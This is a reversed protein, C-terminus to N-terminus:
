RRCAAASCWLLPAPSVDVSVSVRGREALWRRSGEPLEVVWSRRKRKIHAWGCHQQHCQMTGYLQTHSHPRYIAFAIFTDFLYRLLDRACVLGCLLLPFSFFHNSLVVVVRAFVRALLPCLVCPLLICLRSSFWSFAVIMEDVVCCVSCFVVLVVGGCVQGAAGVHSALCCLALLRM